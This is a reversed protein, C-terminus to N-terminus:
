NCSQEQAKAIAMEISVQESEGWSGVTSGVLIGKCDVVFTQPIGNTQSLANYISRNMDQLVPYAPKHTSIWRTYDIERVDLGLDIFQIRKNSDYKKSM